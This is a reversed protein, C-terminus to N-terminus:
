AINRLTRVAQAMIAGLVIAGGILTLAGPVERIVLWVWIPGLVVETLSLLTIEAAPLYKSGNTFLILGIGIQFVGMVACLLWDNLVIQFHGGTALIMMSSIILATFGAWFVSPLLDTNKGRRLLVAFAAFGTAAMLGMLSGFMTGLQFGEFVMVGVGATAILIFWWTSHSIHEKLLWWGMVAAIFPATSLLFLANAVTTNTLAFIWSCFAVGLVFGAGVALWGGKRFSGILSSNRFVAMYTLLFAALALSRHFLISWETAFEILRVALGAISWCVGATLVLVVGRSRNGYQIQEGNSDM